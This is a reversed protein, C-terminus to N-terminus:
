SSPRPPSRRTRPPSSAPPRSTTASSSGSATPACSRRCSPTASTSGRALAQDAHVSPDALRRELEAHEALLGDVAEFM